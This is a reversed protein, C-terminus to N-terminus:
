AAVFVGVGQPIPYLGLHWLLIDYFDYFRFSLLTSNMVIQESFLFLIIFNFNFIFFYM